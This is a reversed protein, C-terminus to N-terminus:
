VTWCGLCLYCCDKSSTSAPEAFGAVVADVAVAVLSYSGAAVVAAAEEAVVIMGKAVIQMRHHLSSHEREVM